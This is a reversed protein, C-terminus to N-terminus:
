SVPTRQRENYERRRRARCARCKRAPGLASSKNSKEYYVNEPTLEHGNVCHTKTGNAEAVGSYLYLGNRERREHARRMNEKRTVPELHAPNVCAPVNCLHDMQLGAPIPGVYHEYSFRHALGRRLGGFMGYGGPNRYGQWIWCGNDDNAVYALFRTLTRDDM